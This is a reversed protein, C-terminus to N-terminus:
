RPSSRSSPSRSRTRGRARDRLQRRDDGQVNFRVTGGAEVDKMFDYGHVHIEDAIDSTSSSRQGPRGQQGQDEQHRRGAQADKVISEHLVPPGAPKPEHHDDHEHRTSRRRRATPRRPRRPPPPRTAATTTAAAPSSAAIRRRHHRSVRAHEQSVSRRDFNGRAASGRPARPPRSRSPPAIRTWRAPASGADLPRLRRARLGRVRRPDSRSRGGDCRSGIWGGLRALARSRGARLDRRARRWDARPHRRARTLPRADLSRM